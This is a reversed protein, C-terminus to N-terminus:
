PVADHELMDAGKAAHTKMIEFEEPTLKDSKNLIVDPITIKGIDHLASAMGILQVDMATM